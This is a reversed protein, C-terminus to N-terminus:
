PLLNDALRWELTDTNLQLQWFNTDDSVSFTFLKARGERSAHVLNVRKVDYTRGGARFRRPVVRNKSFSVLVDIPNSMHDSVHFMFCLVHYSNPIEM